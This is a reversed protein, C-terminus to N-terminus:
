FYIFRMIEVMMICYIYKNYLMFINGSHIYIIEVVDLQISFEEM